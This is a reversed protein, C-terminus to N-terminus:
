FTARRPPLKDLQAPTTTQTSANSYATGSESWNANPSIAASTANINYSAMEGFWQGSRFTSSFVYNNGSTLNPSSTSVAAGSSTAANVSQIFNTLGTKLATPNGASYYTGRGNVAAHWLDDVATQTDGAVVPWNCASGSVVWLCNASTALNGQAVDYYDGSTATTYNSQYQMYGSVGLGITSTYMRQQQDAINNSAVDSTLSGNANNLSPDRLDTKYYYETVDALTNSTNLGDLYPRSETSDQDGIQTKGDIQLNSADTGANWYGDTSAITYNRQCAYQMPDVTNIGNISTLKNAYYRGAKSIAGRMPTGNSPTAAVFKRFWLDKQGGSANTIDAINLFDSGTNNDISMYGLRYSTSLSAFANSVASKTMQMRTHYYAWWNAFNTMEEAYTCTTGACDTRTVAKVATNPYPYSTTSSQITVQINQGPVYVATVGGSFASPAVAINGSAISVVPTFSIAGLASPATITVTSNKVTATYGNATIAAAIASALGNTSSSSVSGSMIAQGNVTIGTVTTSKASSASLALKATASVASTTLQGPYRANVYTQGNIATDFRTAQCTTLTSDTCWRVYAPYIYPAAPATQANCNRRSLEKCYEGPVFTYYTAPYTSGTLDQKSGSTSTTFLQAQTGSYGTNATQVSFGDYPVSTWATTLSSTMSPYGTSPNNDYKLPPSYTTAPDYYVGNYRSNRTLQTQTNYNTDSGVTDPLYDWTMSGSDDLVYFINPKVLTAASTQLPSTALVTVAAPAQSMVALLASGCLLIKLLAKVTRSM